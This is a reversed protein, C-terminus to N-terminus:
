RPLKSHSYIGDVYMAVNSNEGLNAGTSTIGRLSPQLFSGFFTMAVGPVVRALDSTNAIGSQALAQADIAVISMPVDTLSENRRQATVIIEGDSVAPQEAGPATGASAGSAFTMSGVLATGCLILTRIM